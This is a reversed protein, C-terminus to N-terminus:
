LISMLQKLHSIEHTAGSDTDGPKENLYVQDIGYNKAGNIDAKLNDGIMISQEPHAQCHKMAYQFIGAQPKKFGAKESTIVKRFYKSIDSGEMKISQIEEFGNTIIFLPYKEYLYDLVEKAGEILATKKPCESLYEKNMSDLTARPPMPDADVAEFVLRFREDRLYSKSLQGANYKEWLENNIENYREIFYDVSDIGYALLDYRSFIEKLTQTANTEHDWLTHDLDFFVFNYTKTM